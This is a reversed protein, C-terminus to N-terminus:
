TRRSLAMPIVVASTMEQRASVTYKELIATIEAAADVYETNCAWDTLDNHLDMSQDLLMGRRNSRAEIAEAEVALSRLQTGLDQAAAENGNVHTSGKSNMADYCIPTDAPPLSMVHLMPKVAYDIYIGVCVM